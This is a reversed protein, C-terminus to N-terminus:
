CAMQSTHQAPFTRVEILWTVHSVSQDEMLQLIATGVQQSWSLQNDRKFELDAPIKAVKGPFYSRESM